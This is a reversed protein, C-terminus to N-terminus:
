GRSGSPTPSGGVEPPPFIPTTLGLGPTSTALMIPASPTVLGGPAAPASSATTNPDADAACRFGVWRPYADRVNDPAPFGYQRHVSRAFFPVSDWSGGRLVKRLEITPGQPNFVPQPQNAMQNYYDASYWDNVWEAVNGAMDLLGYPSAGLPYTGIAVTGLAAERPRNTKALTESWQNGWPYIRGDDGRAAREWEAETPLRRGIAQCYANAGYWTVGFVPHNNLGLPVNYNAGDFTIVAGSPNENVTQICIFGNCGNLHTSGQSRLYNLFAVYQQFTVETIEMRYPNLQVQFPPNADEGYSEQCNGGDRTRCQSVAEIVELPTTGMTFVGGPINAMNSVLGVLPAPIASTPSAQPVVVGGQPAVLGGPPTLSVAAIVTPAPLGPALTQAIGEAQLNIPPTPSPFLIVGQDASTPEPTATIVFPTSTPANPDPTATVIMMITQPTVPIPTPATRFSDLTGSLLLLFIVLGGCLLGPFFGILMWQWGSSRRRVGPRGYNPTM